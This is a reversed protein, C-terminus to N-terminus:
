MVRKFMKELEYTSFHIFIPRGHPCTFPNECHHLQEILKEMEDKRLHRNAKIAAKCSMMKASEDRLLATDIKGQKQLWTVIEFILGEVDQEPFWNPYSRILFTTGGFPEIDLGWEQLDTVYTQLCLAETATCEVTLPVLLAQQGHNKEKMKRVFKEYYIREHAAHQDFLYFGDEAQAVVYTGHIQGIPLLQPLRNVPSKSEEEMEGMELKEEKIEESIPPMPEAVPKSLQTFSSQYVPRPRERVQEREKNWDFSSQVPKIEPREKKELQLKPIFTQKSFTAKLLKEIQLCLEKEKSLRVELKAPHVNVDLLKADMNVYVVGLPFRGVPLLTAYARLIAQTIPISRVYRGNVILSIYNRSARTVEPKSMYGWIKFDLDEDAFDVMHRTVQKGYLAHLVHLSKGDGASRFLEKGNHSLSFSIKPHALALRGVVDAVHGVETNITKLYKLRAPTNFFLDKVEVETGLPRSTLETKMAGAGAISVTCAAQEPDSATTLRVKSVSAISPLAEGRFGLTRITSLDREHKIKSTAHRGFALKADEQDMGLGNDIVRILSIGGEELYIQIRDADADIANEMLEKVISAPREVVEGAAIQNALHDSLVQIKGVM